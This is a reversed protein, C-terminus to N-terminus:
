TSSVPGFPDIALEAILDGRLVFRYDFAYPSGPFDGSVVVGVMYADDRQEVSRIHSTLNYSSVTGSLWGRIQEIGKLELDEGNDWVTADATFCALTEQPDSGGKASFYNSIPTPLDVASM